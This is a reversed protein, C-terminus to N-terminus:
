EDSRGKARAIAARAKQIAPHTTASPLANLLEEIAELLDPAAAILRANAHAEEQSIERTDRLRRDGSHCACVLANESPAWVSFDTLLAWPGPTHSPKQDEILDGAGSDRTERVM